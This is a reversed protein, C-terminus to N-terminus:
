RLVLVDDQLQGVGDVYKLDDRYQIVMDKFRQDIKAEEEEPDEESVGDQLDDAPIYARSDYRSSKRKDRVVQSKTYELIDMEIEQLSSEVDSDLSDLDRDRNNSELRAKLIQDPSQATRLKNSDINTNNQKEEAKNTRGFIQKRGLVIRLPPNIKEEADAKFKHDQIVSITVKDFKPCKFSFYLEQRYLKRQRLNIPRSSRLM